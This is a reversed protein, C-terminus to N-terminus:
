THQRPTLDCALRSAVGVITLYHPDSFSRVAMKGVGYRRVTKQAHRICRSNDIGHTEQSQAVDEARIHGTVNHEEADRECTRRAERNRSRGHGQHGEQKARRPPTALTIAFRETSSANLTHPM